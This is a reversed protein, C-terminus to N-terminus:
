TTLRRHYQDIVLIVVNEVVALADAPLGRDESPKRFPQLVIGTPPVGHICRFCQLYIITSVYRAVDRGIARGPWLGCHCPYMGILNELGVFWLGNGLSSWDERCRVGIREAVFELGRPM